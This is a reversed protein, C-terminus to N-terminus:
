PKTLKSLMVEQPNMNHAKNQDSNQDGSMEEGISAPRTMNHM